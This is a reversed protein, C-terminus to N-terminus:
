FCFNPSFCGFIILCKPLWFFNINNDKKTYTYFLCMQEIWQLLMSFFITDLCYFVTTFYPCILSMKSSFSLREFIESLTFHSTHPLYWGQLINISFVNVTSIVILETFVCAAVRPVLNPTLWCPLANRLCCDNPKLIFFNNGFSCM